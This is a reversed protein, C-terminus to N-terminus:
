AGESCRVKVLVDTKDTTPVTAYILNRGVFCYTETGYCTFDEREVDNFMRPDLVTIVGTSAATDVRYLLIQCHLTKKDWYQESTSLLTYQQNEAKFKEMDKRYRLLSQPEHRIDKPGRLVAIEIVGSDRQPVLRLDSLQTPLEPSQFPHM